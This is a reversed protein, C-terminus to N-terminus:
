CAVWGPARAGGDRQPPAAAKPPAVVRSDVMINIGVYEAIFGVIANIHEDQFEISVPSDLAKEIESKVSQKETQEEEVPISIPPPKLGVADAGEPLEKEKETNLQIKKREIRRTSDETKLNDDYAGLTADALLRTATHNGPDIILIQEFLEKAKAFKHADLYRQGETMLEKVRTYKLEDATAPLGGQDAAPMSQPALVEFTKQAAPAQGSTAMQIKGECKQVMRKANEHNPDLALARNFADLAERYMERSYLSVGDRYLQEAQSIESPPAERTAPAAADPSPATKAPTSPPATSSAKQGSYAPAILFAILLTGRMTLAIIPRRTRAMILM